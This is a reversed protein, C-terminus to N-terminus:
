WQLANSPGAIPPGGFSSSSALDQYLGEDDDGENDEENDIYGPPLKLSFDIVSDKFPSMSGPQDHMERFALQKRFLVHILTLM